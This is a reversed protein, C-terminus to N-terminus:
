IMNYFKCFYNFDKKYINKKYGFLNYRKIGKIDNDLINFSFM